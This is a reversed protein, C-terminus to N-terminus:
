HMIHWSIRRWTFDHIVVLINESEGGFGEDTDFSLTEGGGGPTALISPPFIQNDIFLGDATGNSLVSGSNPRGGTRNDVLMVWSAGGSSCASGGNPLYTSYILFHASARTIMKSVVREGENPM